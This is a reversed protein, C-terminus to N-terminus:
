RLRRMLNEARIKLANENRPIPIGEKEFITIPIILVERPNCNLDAGIASIGYKDLTEQDPSNCTYHFVAGISPLLRTYELQHPERNNM